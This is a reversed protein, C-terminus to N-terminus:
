KQSKANARNKEIEDSRKGGSRFVFLKSFVYNLLVVFVSVPIKTINENWQLVEVAIYILLTEMIGSALRCSFFSIVQRGLSDTTNKEFVFEYNTIFAFVVAGVWAIGQSILYGKDFTFVANFGFYLVYNVVTTLAGFIVYLIFEKYKRYMRVVFSQLKEM